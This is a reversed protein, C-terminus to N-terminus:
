EGDGYLVAAARAANATGNARVELATIQITLSLDKGSASDADADIEETSRTVLGEARLVVPQGAALRGLGMKETQEATLCISTGYGFLMPQYEMPGDTDDQKLSTLAM